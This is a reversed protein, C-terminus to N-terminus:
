VSGRCAIVTPITRNFDYYFLQLMGEKQLAFGLPETYQTMLLRCRSSMMKNGKRFEMVARLQALSQEWLLITSEM